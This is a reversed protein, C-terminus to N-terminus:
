EKTNIIQNNVRNYFEDLLKLAHVKADHLNDFVNEVSLYAMDKTIYYEGTEDSLKTDVEVKEITFIFSNVYWM